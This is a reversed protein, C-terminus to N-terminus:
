TKLRSVRGDGGDFTRKLNALYEKIQRDNEGGVIKGAKNKFLGPIPLEIRFRNDLFLRTGGGSGPKIRWRGDLKGNGVGEIATWHMSMSADDVEYRCAYVLQAKIPGIDVGKFTWRWGGQEPELAVVDPFHAASDPVVRLLALVEEPKAKVDVFQKSVASLEM